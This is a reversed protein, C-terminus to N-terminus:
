AWFGRSFIGNLFEMEPFWGYEVTCFLPSTIVFRTFKVLSDSLYKEAIPIPLRGTKCFLERFFTCSM